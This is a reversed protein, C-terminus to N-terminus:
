SASAIHEIIDGSVVSSLVNTFMSWVSQMFIKWLGVLGIVMYIPGVCWILHQKGAQKVLADHCACVKWWHDKIYSRGTLRWDNSVRARSSSFSPYSSYKAEYGTAVKEDVGMRTTSYCTVQIWLMHNAKDYTIHGQRGLSRSCLQAPGTVLKTIVVTFDFQAVFRAAFRAVFWAESHLQSTFEGPSNYLCAPNNLPTMPVHWLACCVGLQTMSLAITIM